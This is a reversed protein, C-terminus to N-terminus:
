KCYIDYVEYANKYGLKESKKLDLCGSTRQGLDIKIFGRWFFAMRRQERDGYGFGVVRDFDTLAGHYDDLRFKAEGRGVRFDADNQNGEIAKSFDDIAGRLDELRYKAWARRGFTNYDEPNIILARNYDSIAGNYDMLYYKVVGRNEWAQIFQSDLKIAKSFEVLARQYDKTFYSNLGDYYFQQAKGDYTQNFAAISTFLTVILFLNRKM